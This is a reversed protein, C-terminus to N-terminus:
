HIFLQTADTLKKLMCNIEVNNNFLTKIKVDDISVIITSCIVVYISRFFIIRIIIEKLHILKIFNFKISKVHM